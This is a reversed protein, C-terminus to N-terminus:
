CGKCAAWRPGCVGCTSWCTKISRSSFFHHFSDIHWLNYYDYFEFSQTVPIEKWKKLDTFM